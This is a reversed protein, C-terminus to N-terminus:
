TNPRYNRLSWLFYVVVVIWIVPVLNWYPALYDETTLFLIVPSYVCGGVFAIILGGFIKEIVGNRNRPMYSEGSNPAYVFKLATSVGSFTKIDSTNKKHILM